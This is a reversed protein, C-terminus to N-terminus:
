RLPRPGTAARWEELIADAAHQSAGHGLTRRIDNFGDLMARRAPSADDLLPELEDALRVPNADHQILEPCLGRGAVLNVMGIHPVKILRRGIAYTLPSARYVVVLPCGILATELTATGSVVWAARAQRAVHRMQGITTTWRAPRAPQRELIARAHADLEPTASAILFSADPRRRELEVAAACLAPLIRDLEQARSGPLIAVRAAEPGEPWPMPPSPAALMPALDDVLPHGVYDVRLGTGEFHAPEFPFIALLRDIIRAMCPIRSRHWAWVQPCIYYVVRVGRAHLERALRLNLGPYDVLVAMRTRGDAARALLDRHVRAFFPLRRLVEFLGMVSLDRTHFLLEAGGAAMRDGGAGWVPADLGRARLARLAGAAHMDGSLEGAVWLMEAPGSPASM